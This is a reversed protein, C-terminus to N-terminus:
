AESGSGEGGARPSPALQDVITALQAGERSWAWVQEAVEPSVLIYRGADAPVCAVDRGALASFLGGLLAAAGLQEGDLEPVGHGIAVLADGWREFRLSGWGFLSLVCSAHGLVTEPSLESASRGLSELAHRGIERGLRRVATLDGTEVAAAVLPAVVDHSLVLVRAGSRTQVSGRGLDFEFFAGPDFQPENM